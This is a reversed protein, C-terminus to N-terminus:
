SCSVFELQEENDAISPNFLEIDSEDLIEHDNSKRQADKDRGKKPFLRAIQWAESLLIGRHMSKLCSENVKFQVDAFVEIRGEARRGFFRSDFHEDMLKTNNLFSVTNLFIDKVTLEYPERHVYVTVTDFRMVNPNKDMVGPVKLMLPHKASDKYLKANYMDFRELEWELELEEVYLLFAWYKQYNEKTIGEEVMKALTQRVKSQVPTMTQFEGLEHKVVDDMELPIMIDPKKKPTKKEPLPLVWEGNVINEQAASVSEGDELFTHHKPVSAIQSYTLKKGKKKKKSTMKEQKGLAHSQGLAPFDLEINAQYERELNWKSDNWNGEDQVSASEFLKLFNDFAAEHEEKTKPKVEQLTEKPDGDSTPSPHATSIGSTSDCSAYDLESDSCETEASGSSPDDETDYDVADDYALEESEESDLDDEEYDSKSGDKGSLIRLDTLENRQVIVERDKDLAHRVARSGEKRVMIVESLTM